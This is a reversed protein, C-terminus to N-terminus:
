RNWSDNYSDGSSGQGGETGSGNADNSSAGAAKAERNERVASIIMYVAVGLVALCILVLFISGFPMTRGFVDEAEDVVIVMPIGTASALSELSRNVTDANLDLNSKNTLHPTVDVNNEECLFAHKIGTAVVREEMRNIAQALNADLSYKYSTANVSAELAADLSTGEGGFLDSIQYAVHDGVWAIYNYEYHDEYTLFVLLIHDEYADATAFEERYCADAYDQIKEENYVVEGGNVLANVSSTISTVLFIGAFIVLFIPVMIMGM